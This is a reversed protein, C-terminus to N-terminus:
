EMSSVTQLVKGETHDNLLPTNDFGSIFNLIAM